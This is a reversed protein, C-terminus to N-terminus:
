TVKSVFSIAAWYAVALQQISVLFFDMKGTSGTEIFDSKSM